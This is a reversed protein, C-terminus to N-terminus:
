LLVFNWQYAIIWSLEETEKVYVHLSVGLKRNDSFFYIVRSVTAHLHCIEGTDQCTPNLHGSAHTDSYPSEACPLLFLALGNKEFCSNGRRLRRPWGDVLCHLANRLGSHLSPACKQNLQRHPAIGATTPRPGSRNQLHRLYGWRPCTVHALSPPQFPDRLTFLRLYTVRLYGLFNSPTGGPGLSLFANYDKLILRYVPFIISLLISPWLLHSWIPALPAILLSDSGNFEHDIVAAM